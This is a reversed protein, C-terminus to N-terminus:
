KGDKNVEKDTSVTRTDVIRSVKWEDESDDEYNCKWECEYVDKGVDSWSLEGIEREKIHCIAYDECVNGFMSIGSEEVKKIAEDLSLFLGITYYMEDLTSDIIEYIKEM